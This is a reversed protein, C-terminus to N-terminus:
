QLIKVTMNFAVLRAEGAGSSARAAGTAPMFGSLAFQRPGLGSRDVAVRRSKCRMQLPFFLDRLTPVRDLPLKSNISSSQLEEANIDRRGLFQTRIPGPNSMSDKARGQM